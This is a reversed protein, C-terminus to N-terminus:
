RKVNPYPIPIPGAPPGVDPTSCCDPVVGIPFSEPGPPAGGTGGPVVAPRPGSADTTRPGSSPARRPRLGSRPRHWRFPADVEGTSIQDGAQELYRGLRQIQSSIAGADYPARPAAPPLARDGELLERARRESGIRADLEMEWATPLSRDGVWMDDLSRAGREPVQGVGAGSVTAPPPESAPICNEVPPCSWGPACVMGEPCAYAPSAFFLLGAGILLSASARPRCDFMVKSRSGTGPGRRQNAKGGGAAPLSHATMAIPRDLATIHSMLVLGYEALRSLRIM